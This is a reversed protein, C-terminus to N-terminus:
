YSLQGKTGLPVYCSVQVHYASSTNCTIQVRNRGPWKITRTPSLERRQSSIKLFDRIAGKFAIMIIIIIIVHRSILTDLMVFTLWLSNMRVARQPVEDTINPQEDTTEYAFLNVIALRLQSRSQCWDKRRSKNKFSHYKHQSTLGTKPYAKTGSTTNM